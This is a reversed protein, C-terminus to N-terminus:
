AGTCYYLQSLTLLPHLISGRPVSICHGLWSWILQQFHPRLEEKQSCLWQEAGSFMYPMPLEADADDSLDYLESCSHPLLLAPAWSTNSSTSPEM